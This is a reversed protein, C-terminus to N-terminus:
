GAGLFQRALREGEAEAARRDEVPTVRPGKFVIYTVGSAAGGLSPDPRIGLGRATAYSAEGILGRPGTDGVVAFQVRGRYIVAAVSGGGIGHARHDWIGSPAPIVIYPVFEASLHRDDPQQFATAATFSPDTRPNCRATPRGDCDVDLDAKWFVAERTGCVRVNAPAGDDTRYRGRSVQACTHMRALLDAATVAGENHAFPGEPPPVAAASLAAPALLAASAAVLTLSQVRM